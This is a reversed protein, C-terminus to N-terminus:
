QRRRVEDALRQRDTETANGGFTAKQVPEELLLGNLTKVRSLATYLLGSAFQRQSIDLVVKDLTLGQSRHVTTAWGLKLPFQTRHHTVGQRQTSYRTRFIPLVYSGDATPATLTRGTYNDLAVLIAFPTDVGPTDGQKWRIEKVTGISGNVVGDRVSINSMVMVRCGITLYLISPLDGAEDSNGQLDGTAKIALVPQSSAILEDTNYRNVQNWTYYLRIADHFAHIDPEPLESMCRATLNQWNAMSMSNARRIDALIRQFAIDNGQRHATSLFFSKDFALYSDCLQPKFLSNSSFPELQYFDGVLLVSLGGFSKDFVSTFERCRQDVWTLLRVDVMSKEDIVIVKVGSLKSQLDGLATADLAIYGHIGINFAEHITSSKINRAAVGTPAVKTVPTGQHNSFSAKMEIRQCISDILFSKGTGPGGDIQILFQEDPQNPTLLADALPIVHQYVRLQDASLITTVNFDHAIIDAATPRNAAAAAVHPPPNWFTQRIGLVELQGVYPSWDM